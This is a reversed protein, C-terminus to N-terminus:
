ALRFASFKINNLCIVKCIVNVVFQKTFCQINCTMHSASAMERTFVSLSCTSKRIASMMLFLLKAFRIHLIERNQM